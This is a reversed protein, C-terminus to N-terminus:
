RNSIAAIRIVAIETTIEVREEVSRRKWLNLPSKPQSKAPTRCNGIAAIQFRQSELECKQAYRCPLFFTYVVVTSVERKEKEPDSARHHLGKKGSRHHIGKGRTKGPFHYVGCSIKARHGRPRAVSPSFLPGATTTYVRKEGTDLTGAVSM